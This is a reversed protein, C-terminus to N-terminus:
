MLYAIFYFSIMVFLVSGVSLVLLGLVDLALFSQWRSGPAEKWFHVVCSLHFLATVILFFIRARNSPLVFVLGAVMLPVLILVLLM